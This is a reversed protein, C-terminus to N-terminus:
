QNFSRAFINEILDSSKAIFSFFGWLDVDYIGSNLAEAGVRISKANALKELYPIFEPIMDFLTEEEDKKEIAPPLRKTITADQHGFLSQGIWPPCEVTSGSESACIRLFAYQFLQNGFRGLQGISSM